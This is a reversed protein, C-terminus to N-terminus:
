QRGVLGRVLRAVALQYPLATGLLAGLPPTIWAFGSRRTRTVVLMYVVVGVVVLAQWVVAFGVWRKVAGRRAELEPARLGAALIRDYGMFQVVLCCM